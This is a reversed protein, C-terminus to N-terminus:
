ENKGYGNPLPAEKMSCVRAKHLVQMLLLTAESDYVRLVGSAHGVVLASCGASIDVWSLATVQDDPDALETCKGGACHATILTRSGDSMASLSADSNIAVVLGPCFRLDERPEALEAGKQGHTSNHDGRISEQLEEMPAASYSTDPGYLLCRVLDLTDSPAFFCVLFEFYAIVQREHASPLSIPGLKAWRHGDQNKFWLINM